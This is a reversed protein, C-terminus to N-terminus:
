SGNKKAARMMPFLVWEMHYIRDAEEAGDVIERVDDVFEQYREVIKEYAAEDISMSLGRFHRLSVPLDMAGAAQKLLNVHYQRLPVNGFHDGTRQHKTALQLKGDKDREILALRELRELAKHIEKQTARMPLQAAIWGADERFEKLEVMERLTLSLPDSLYDLHDVEMHRVQKFRHSRRLTQMMEAKEATSKARGYRVLKIFFGAEDRDLKLAEPMGQALRLSLHREGSIIMALYNRSKIGLRDSIFRRSYKANESKLESLRDNLFARYDIYDFINLGTRKM